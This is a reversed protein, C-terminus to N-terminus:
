RAQFVFFLTRVWVFWVLKAMHPHVVSWEIEMYHLTNLSHIRHISYGKVM